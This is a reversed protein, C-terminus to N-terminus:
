KGKKGSSNSKVIIRDAPQVADNLVETWREDIPRTEVPIERQEGKRIVTIKGQVVSRAPILVAKEIQRIKIAVDCTMEPLVGEPFEKVEIKALFENGSPYISEVTGEVQVNRLNEFSLEAQQGKRVKIISEQDLSVRVYMKELSSLTLVVQGAPAMEGERYPISTVTGSFPADFVVPADTMILPTGKTVSQGEDVYLKRVITSMGFRINYWRDTKVTGLAYVAEVVPGIRPKVTEVPSRLAMVVILIIVSVIGAAIVANRKHVKMFDSMLKKVM